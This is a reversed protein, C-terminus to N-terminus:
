KFQPIYRYAHERNIIMSDIKSINDAFKARFENIIQYFQEINETEFEPELEWDGLSEVNHVININNKFFDLIERKRKPTIEQLKIFAKIFIHEIKELHISSRYQLIIKQKELQKIRYGVTRASLGIKKAIDIVSVRADTALEQMIRSDKSDISVQGRNSYLITEDRNFLSLYSRPYFYAQIQTTSNFNTIKDHFKHEFSLKFNYFDEAKSIQVGLVLDWVGNGEAIWGVLQESKLYNYINKKENEKLGRFKIYLKYIRYGLLSFDFFTTYGSIIGDQELKKIRYAVSDKHLRTRKGIQSYTSRANTSLIALIKRDKQDLNM